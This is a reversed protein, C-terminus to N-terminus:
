SATMQGMYADEHGTDIKLHKKIMWLECVPANSRWRVQKQATELLSKMGM